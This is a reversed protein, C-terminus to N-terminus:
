NSGDSSARRALSPTKEAGAAREFLWREDSKLAAAIKGRVEATPNRFGNVIKSLLAEDIGLVRALRNQRMGTRWLQLKLNPYM